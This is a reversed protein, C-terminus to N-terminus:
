FLSNGKLYGWFSHKKRPKYDQVLIPMVREHKMIGRAARAAKRNHVVFSLRSNRDIRKTVWFARKYGRRRGGGIIRVDPVEYAHGDVLRRNKGKITHREVFGLGRSVNPSDIYGEKGVAISDSLILKIGKGKKWDKQWRFLTDRPFIKGGTHARVRKLHLLNDHGYVMSPRKKKTPDFDELQFGSSIGKKVVRSGIRSYKQRQSDTITVRKHRM